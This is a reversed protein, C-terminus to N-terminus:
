IRELYRNVFLKLESPVKYDKGCMVNRGQTSKMLGMNNDIWLDYGDRYDLGSEKGKSKHFVYLAHCFIEHRAFIDMFFYGTVDDYVFDLHFDRFLKMALAKDKTIFGCDKRKGILWFALRFEVNPYMSNLEKVVAERDADLHMYEWYDQNRRSHMDYDLEYWDNQSKLKEM